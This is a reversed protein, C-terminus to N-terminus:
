GGGMLVIHFVTFLTFVGWIATLVISGALPLATSSPSSHKDSM